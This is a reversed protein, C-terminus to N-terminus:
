RPMTPMFRVHVETGQDRRIEIEGKLRGVFARVLDLGLSRDNSLDVDEPMGIGNDKVVLEFEKDGVPRLFVSIEGTTGDPFAHKLCNSVLETVIFGLPLATNIPVSVDEVEQTTSVTSSLRNGSVLYGVLLAILTAVDVYAFNETGYALNHVVAMSNIRAQAEDIMSRCCQKTAHHSQMDLLGLIAALNNKVRDEVEMLMASKEELAAKLRDEAQKRDTVDNAFVAVAQVQGGLDLVPYVCHDYTRGAREDTYRVPKGTRFAGELRTMRSKTVEAPLIDFISRGMVEDVTRGLREAGARNVALVTGRADMLFASETNANLTAELRERSILLEREAQKRDTIDIFSGMVCVPRGIESKVMSVSIQAEFTSGDKRRAVLEGAWSGEESVTRVVHQAERRDEWFETALRGMAEQSDDYGWLRLFAPNVYTLRGGLDGIVVANISSAIASDKTALAETRERVKEELTQLYDELREYLRANDLQIAAQTCLFRLMDLRDQTFAGSMLNNELYLLGTLVGQLILPTCVISKSRNQVVYPDNIFQGEVAADNLVVTEKTRAAFKVVSRALNRNSEIPTSQLVEIHDRDMRAAAEIRLGGDSELILFGKEAGANEIVIRMLSKLLSSLLIEGSIAQSAKMVSAFDLRRDLDGSHPEQVTGPEDGVVAIGAATAHSRALLDGFREDLDSVKAHAGWQSWCSRAEQMYARASLKTGSSLYFIAAREYALAQDHLYEHERALEIARDYYEMAQSDQGMLRFTEAEVLNLKHLYNMPAHHAWKRMRKRNANLKNVIRRRESRSVDPFVALRALSDYFALVPIHMLGTLCDSYTEAMDGYELAERYRHFVYSLLLKMQYVVLLASRDGGKALRPIMTREDCSQGILSEAQESRGMLNLVAQHTIQIQERSREQKLHALTECHQAMEQELAQLERGAFFSYQSNMVLAHGAFELDGISLCKEHIEPLGELVERVHEKWHIIGINRVLLTKARQDGPDIREMLQEALEGFRRGGDLDGVIGSLVMGFTAYAHSSTPGNGHKVSLEVLKLILLGNLEPSVFFAAPLLSALMRSAALKQPDTMEPLDVLDHISRRAVTLRSKLLQLWLHFKRRREPFEMGLQKLASLAVKVAEQPKNLAVYAQIMAEHVQTKDLTTRAKALVTAALAAMREFDAGVYAAESAEVYLALTLDYHSNWSDEELLAIGTNLYEFAAQYAASARAKRGASLNLEALEYSESRSYISERGNNLQNVIDFIKDEQRAPLTNRLLLHGIRRHVAPRESDPILSYAAEQIRDHFFQYEVRRGESLESSDMEATMDADGVPCVLGAEVAANLSNAIARPPKQRVAALTELDFQSGICAALILLDRTDDRLKEIKLEILDVASDGIGLAQIQALSWQWRGQRFDFELLRESRMSEFFQHIDFPNGGTREVVLEALPRETDEDCGLTDRTLRVVQELNLPSVELSNISAGENRLNQLTTMFPHGPTVETDRYAGILFFYSIERDTMMLELAELSSPDAWQLDDLFVVLAHEPRCFIRVFNRFVVNFRNRAEVPGLAQVAPQPGIILELEPVVEIMVQGNVGLSALLKRRWRALREESDGLLQRVLEQLADVVASYPINRRYQDFKGSVFYGRERTVPKYIERVLSSKGIGQSGSVLVMEKEGRSVRDFARMLTRIQAERGYLKQPIRLRDPTDHVGLPFPTITGSAELRSLCEELDAKLGWASQYRDEASKSLLKATIDSVPKPIKPNLINPPKALVALHCHVLQLPDDTAFPLRGTLLEYLTVGLSYFDTRNDVSRNMRGTQEPSMYALTGELQTPNEITRKEGQIVRASGFDVIRLAGTETNYVINSPNIDRHVMNNAHMEGLIGAIRIAIKLVMKLSLDESKKLSDLSVGGVDELVIVPRRRFEELGYTKIIGDSDLNQLIKYEHRYRGAEVPADCEEKLAKLIVPLGDRNRVARCIASSSSEYIRDLTRYGPINTM